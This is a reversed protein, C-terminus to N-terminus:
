HAAAYVREKFLELGLRRVTDIFREDEHLSPHIACLLRHQRSVSEVGHFHKVAHRYYLYNAAAREASSSEEM